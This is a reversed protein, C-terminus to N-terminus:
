FASASLTEGSAGATDGGGLSRSTLVKPPPTSAATVPLRRGLDSGPAAQPIQTPPDTPNAPSCSLGGRSPMARNISSSVNFHLIAQVVL